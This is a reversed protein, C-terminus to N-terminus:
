KELFAYEAVLIVEIDKSTESIKGRNFIMLENATRRYLARTVVGEPKLFSKLTSERPHFDKASISSESGANPGFAKVEVDFGRTIKGTERQIELPIWLHFNLDGDELRDLNFCDWKSRSEIESLETSLPLVTSIGTSAHVGHLLASEVAWVKVLRYRGQNGDAVDAAFAQHELEQDVSFGRLHCSGEADKEIRIGSPAVPPPTPAPTQASKSPEPTAPSTAGNGCGVILGMLILGFGFTLKRM